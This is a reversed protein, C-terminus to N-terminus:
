VDPTWDPFIEARVAALGALIEERTTRTYRDTMSEPSHGLIDRRVAKPVGVREAITAWSRRLGHPGMVPFGLKEAGRGVRATVTNPMTHAGPAEPKSLHWRRRTFIWDGEDWTDYRAKEQDQQKRHRELVWRTMPDLWMRRPKGGKPTPSYITRGMGMTINERLRVFGRDDLSSWKLGISEGRRTGQLAIFTLLGQHPYHEQDLFIRLQKATWVPGRGFLHSFWDEEGLEDMEDEDDNFVLQNVLRRAGAAKVPNGVHLGNDSAFGFAASVVSIYNLMSSAKLDRHVLDETVWITIMGQTIKSMPTKLLTRPIHPLAKRNGSITSEKLGSQALRFEIVEELTANTPLPQHLAHKLNQEIQWAVADEESDFSKTPRFPSHSVPDLVPPMQVRYKTGQKTEYTTITGKLPNRM